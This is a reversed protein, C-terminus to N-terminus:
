QFAKFLVSLISTIESFLSLNELNIERKNAYDSPVTQTALMSKRHSCGTLYDAFPNAVAALVIHKRSLACNHM